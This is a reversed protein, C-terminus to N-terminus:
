VECGCLWVVEGRKETQGAKDRLVRVSMSYKYEGDGGGKGRRDYM